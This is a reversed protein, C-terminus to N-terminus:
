SWLTCYSNITRAMSLVRKRGWQRAPHSWWLSIARLGIWIGLSYRRGWVRFHPLFCREGAVLIFARLRAM